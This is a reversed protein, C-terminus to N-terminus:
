WTMFILPLFMFAIYICKVKLVINAYNDDTFFFRFFKKFFPYACKLRMKIWLYCLEEFVIDQTSCGWIILSQNITFKKQLRQDTVGNM